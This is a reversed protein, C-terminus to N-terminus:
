SVLSVKTKKIENLCWLYSLSNSELSITQLFLCIFCYINFNMKSLTWYYINRKGIKTLSEQNKTIFFNHFPLSRLNAGLIGNFVPLHRIMIMCIARQASCHAAFPLQMLTTNRSWESSDFHTFKYHILLFYSIITSSQHTSTRDSLM